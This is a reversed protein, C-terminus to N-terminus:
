VPQGVSRASQWAAESIPRRRGAADLRDHVLRVVRRGHGLAQVNLRDADLVRVVPRPRRARASGSRARQARTRWRAQRKRAATHRTRERNSSRSNRSSSRSSSLQPASHSCSAPRSSHRQQSPTQEGCLIAQCRSAPSQQSYTSQSSLALCRSAPSQKAAEALRRRERAREDLSLSWRATRRGTAGARTERARAPEQPGDRRLKHALHGLVELRLLRQVLPARAPGRARSRALACACARV